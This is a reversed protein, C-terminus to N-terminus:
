TAGPSSRGARPLASLESDLEWRDALPAGEHEPERGEAGDLGHQRRDRAARAVEEASLPSPAAVAALEARKDEVARADAGSEQILTPAVCRM